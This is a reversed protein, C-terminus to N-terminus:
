ECERDCFEHRCAHCSYSSTLRPRCGLLRPGRSRERSGCIDRCAHAPRWQFAFNRSAVLLRTLSFVNLNTQSTRPAPGSPDHLLRTRNLGQFYSRFINQRRRKSCGTRNIFDRGSRKSLTFLDQRVLLLPSEAEDRGAKAAWTLGKNRHQQSAM